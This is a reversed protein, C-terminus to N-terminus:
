RWVLGGYMFLPKIIANYFQIRERNPLNHRISNLLGIRKTLKKCLADIHDNFSLNQDFIVGLAKYCPVQELLVGKSTTINLVQEDPSLKSKLRKGTVLMSKTKDTNLQLHNKESWHELNLTSRCLNDGLSQSDSWLASSSITTDDAFIDVISPHSIAEPLDNIFILFLIPALVSGQPVGHTLYQSSSLVNNISTRQKRSTLYSTILQLGVGELGYIHLKDILVQHDVLDFAKKFDAFVMGTIFNKDLNNVLRDYINILATETSHQRRFGSQFRYLLNNNKLFTHIANHLHRELVKSIVPLVSIPRYNNKDCKVGNKHLPTVKAEKWVTPFVGRAICINILKTLSEIIAPAAIKLLKISLGDTGTAKGTPIAQIIDHVEQTSIDSFLM